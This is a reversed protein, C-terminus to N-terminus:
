KLSLHRNITSRSPRNNKNKTWKGSLEIRDAVKNRAWAASKGEAIYAEFVKVWPEWLYDSSEKNAKRGKNLKRQHDLGISISEFFLKDMSNSIEDRTSYEKYLVTNEDELQLIELSKREHYDFIGTCLEAQQQELKANKVELKAKDSKLQAIELDKPDPM